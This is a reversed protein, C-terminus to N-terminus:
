EVVELKPKIIVVGKPNGKGDKNCFGCQIKITGAIKMNPNKLM